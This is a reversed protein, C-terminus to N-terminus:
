VQLDISEHLPSSSVSGVPALYSIERHVVTAPDLLNQALYKIVNSICASACIVCHSAEVQCAEIMAITHNIVDKAKNTPLLSAWDEGPYYEEVKELFTRHRKAFLTFADLLSMWDTAGEPSAGGYTGAFHVVKTENTEGGYVADRASHDITEPFANYIRRDLREVHKELETNTVQHLIANLSRQDSEGRGDDNHDWIKNFLARSWHTNRVFLVGSNFADSSVDACAGFDRYLMVDMQPDVILADLDMLIVSGVVGERAVDSRLSSASTLSLLHRIWAIKQWQPFRSRLDPGSALVCTKEHLMCYRLKNDLSISAFALAKQGNYTLLGNSDIVPKMSVVTLLADMKAPTTAGLLRRFAAPQCM